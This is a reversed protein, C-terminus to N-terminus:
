SGVKEVFIQHLTPQLYTVESVAIDENKLQALVALPEQDTKLPIIIRKEEQEFSYQQKQCFLKLKDVDGYLSLYM